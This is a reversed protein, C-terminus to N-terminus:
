RCALEEITRALVRVGAVCDEPSAHEVPSHSIGTPNRVHLMATPLHSALVAADHGAATALATPTIGEAELAESLVKRLSVDFEVGESMSERTVAVRLGALGAAAQVMSEVEKVVTDVVALDQARVDLWASVEHAITNTTNPEVVLKGVTARADHSRAASRAAAVLDGLILMPDARDELRATGAHDPRGEIDVRWRGHPWVGSIIGVPVDRDVLGRGQEIHLEIFAALGHLRARDAGINEPELGAGAMAPAFMTGEADTLALIHGPMAAGTLLRTGLTPVGFRAGEEEIFAVVAVPRRPEVGRRQLEDIAVLGAVVGLAGDFAGGDVVTDLHSGTVVADPGPDGWWAWVNGNRDIEISLGLRRAESIFWHRAAKDAVGWTLRRYGGTEPDRGIAALGDFSANFRESLTV